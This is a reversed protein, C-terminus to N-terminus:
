FSVVRGMFLATGTQKDMLAFTFPHDVTIELPKDIPPRAMSKTRMVIATAAAAEAGNEDIDIYAKHFVDSIMLDNLSTIGSFDAKDSFPLIMGMSQLLSRLSAGFEVRFKPVKYKVMYQEMEDNMKRLSAATLSNEVKMLAENVDQGDALDPLIIALYYSSSSFPMAVAKYGEGFFVHHKKTHFMMDVQVPGNATKFDEKKTVGPEFTDRWPAKFYIANTLVLRTTPMIYGAPLIDQIKDMTSKAVSANITKRAEEPEKVFDVQNIEAHYATQMRATYSELLTYTKELWLKNDIQITAPDSLSGLLKNEVNSGMEGLNGAEPMSLSTQMQKATDGCAGELVMGFAREVSYASVVTNSLKSSTARLLNLSFSNSADSWAKEDITADPRKCESADAKKEDQAAPAEGEPAQAEPANAAPTEVVEPTQAKSCGCLGIMAFSTILLAKRM